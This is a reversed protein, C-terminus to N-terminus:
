QFVPLGTHARAPRQVKFLAVTTPFAGPYTSVNQAGASAQGENSPPPEVNKAVALINRYISKADLAAQWADEQEHGARFHTAREIVYREIFSRGRDLDAMHGIEWRKWPYLESAECSEGHAGLIVVSRGRSVM